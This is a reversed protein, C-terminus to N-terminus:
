RTVDRAQPGWIDTAKPHFCSGDHWAGVETSLGFRRMKAHRHAKKGWITGEFMLTKKMGGGKAPWV